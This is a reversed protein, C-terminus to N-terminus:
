SVLATNSEAALTSENTALGCPARASVANAASASAGRAGGGSGGNGLLKPVYVSESALQQQRQNTHLYGYCAIFRIYVPVPLTNRECAMPSSRAAKAGLQHVPAIQSNALLLFSTPSTLPLSSGATMMPAAGTAAFDHVIMAALLSFCM